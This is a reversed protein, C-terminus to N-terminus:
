ASIYFDVTADKSFEQITYSTDVQEIQKQTGITATFHATYLKQVLVFRDRGARGLVNSRPRHPEMLFSSSM